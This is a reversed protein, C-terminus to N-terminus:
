PGGPPSEPATRPSSSKRPHGNSVFCGKGFESPIVLCLTLAGNKSCSVVVMSQSLHSPLYLNSRDGVFGITTASARWGMKAPVFASGLFTNLRRTSCRSRLSFLLNNLLHFLTSPTVGFLCSSFLSPVRLRGTLCLLSVFEVFVNSPERCREDDRDSAFGGDLSRSSKEQIRKIYPLM